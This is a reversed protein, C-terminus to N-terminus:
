MLAYSALVFLAHKTAISINISESSWIIIKTVATAAQTKSGCDYELKSINEELEVNITM